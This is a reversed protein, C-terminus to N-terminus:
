WWSICLFMHQKWFTDVQPLPVKVNYVINHHM